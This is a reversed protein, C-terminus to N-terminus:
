KKKVKVKKANALKDALAAHGKEKAIDAATKLAFTGDRQAVKREEKPDAGSALLLDIITESGNNVQGGFVTVAYMLPTNAFKNKRGDVDAGKEILLKICELNSGECAYGLVSGGGGSTANVDAGKELFLKCITLRNTSDPKMVLSILPTRGFKDEVDLKAGKDLLYKVIEVSPGFVDCAVHLAYPKGIAKNDWPKNVDANLQEVVKKVAEINKAQVAEILAQQADQAISNEITFLAFVGLIIKKM